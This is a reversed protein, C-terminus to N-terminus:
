DKSQGQGGGNAGNKNDAGNNGNNGGRSAPDQIAVLRGTKGADDHLTAIVRGTVAQADTQQDDMASPLDLRGYIRLPRGNATATGQFRDGSLTLNSFSIAGSSGDPFKATVTLSLTEATVSASGKGSFDGALTCSYTGPKKGRARRKGNAMGNDSQALLLPLVLLIALLRFRM